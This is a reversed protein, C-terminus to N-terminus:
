NVDPRYTEATVPTRDGYIWASIMGSVEDVAPEFNDAQVAEASVVIQFSSDVVENGWNEPITVKTFLKVSDEATLKENYYYYGDAGPFWKNNEAKEDANVNIGALLQEQQKETLGEMTIKARVYCDESEEDVTITPDKVIVQNPVVNTITNNEYHFGPETVEIDVHGMTIVNEASASDTFYALTAGTGIAAVAALSLSFLAIRNGKM